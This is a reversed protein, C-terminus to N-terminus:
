VVQVFKTAHFYAFKAQAINPVNPRFLSLSTSCRVSLVRLSLILQAIWFAVGQFDAALSCNKNTDKM